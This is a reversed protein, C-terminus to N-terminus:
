RNYRDGHDDADAVANGLALDALGNAATRDRRFRGIGTVATVHLAAAAKIIRLFDNFFFPALGRAEAQYAGAGGSM